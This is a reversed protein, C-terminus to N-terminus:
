SINLYHTITNLNKEYSFLEKCYDFANRGIEQFKIPNIKSDLIHKAYEIDNSASLYHTGSVLNQNKVLKPNLIVVKGRSMPEFIKSQQGTGGFVALFISNNEYIEEIDHVWGHVIVNKKSFVSSIKSGYINLVFNDMEPKNFVKNVLFKVGDSNHKVNFTSSLYAIGYIEVNNEDFYINKNAVVLNRLPVVCIKKPSWFYKYYRLDQSSIVFVNSLLRELLVGTIKPIFYLYKKLGINERFCHIPEFNNSRSIRHKSFISLPFMGSTENVIIAGPFLDCIEQVKKCYKLKTNERMSPDIIILKLLLYKAILKIKSYKMRKNKPQGSNLQVYEHKVEQQSNSITITIINEAINKYIDLGGSIDNEEGGARLPKPRISIVTNITKM